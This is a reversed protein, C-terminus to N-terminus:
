PPTVVVKPRMSVLKFGNGALASRIRSMDSVNVEAIEVVITTQEVLEITNEIIWPIGIVRIDGTSTKLKVYDYETPDDPTGAPLTPYYQRHLAYTDITQRATAEDLIALVTVNTFDNGLFAVPYVSFSYANRNKLEM